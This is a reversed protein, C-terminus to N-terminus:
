NSFADTHKKRISEPWQAKIYALVQWIEKDSLKGGYAPMISRYDAGALHQPGYKTFEFLMQDPHHWTHGTEDHPPAPLYGDATRIQWNAQGELKAGHCAACNAGYVLKGAAVSTTDEYPIRAMEASSSSWLATGILASVIILGSVAYKM